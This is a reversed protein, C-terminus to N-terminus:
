RQIVNAKEIKGKVKGGGSLIVDVKQEPDYVLIDGGVSSRNMIEIVLTEERNQDAHHQGHKRRKILIDGKVVSGNDITVNGNYTTIDGSVATSDLSIPGNVTKVDATESGQAMEVGGNVAEVAERIKAGEMVRIGGNVSQIKRVTSRSGVEISGNVSRCVGRIACDSGIRINGNVSTYGHHPKSGDPVNVSENVSVNCGLFLVMLGLSSWKLFRM